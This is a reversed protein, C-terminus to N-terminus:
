FITATDSGEADINKIDISLTGGGINIAVFSMAVITSGYEWDGLFDGCYFTGDGNSIRTGFNDTQIMYNPDPFSNDPGLLTGYLEIDGMQYTSVINSYKDKASITTDFLENPSVQDPVDVLFHDVDGFSHVILNQSYVVVVPSPYVGNWGMARLIFSSSDIGGPVDWQIETVYYDGLEHWNTSNISWALEWHDVQSYNEWEALAEANAIIEGHVTIQGSNIPPAIPGNSQCGVSIALCLGAIILISFFRNM